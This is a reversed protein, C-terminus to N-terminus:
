LLAGATQCCADPPLGCTYNESAAWSLIGGLFSFWRAQNDQNNSLLHRIIFINMIEATWTMDGRTTGNRVGEGHDIKHRIRQAAWGAFTKLRM